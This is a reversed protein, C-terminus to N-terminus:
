RRIPGPPDDLPLVGLLQWDGGRRRAVALSRFGRSGFETVATEMAADTGRPVLAAISQPAGKAVEFGVGDPGRAVAEARKREPDFPRFEITDYRGRREDPVASLIAM